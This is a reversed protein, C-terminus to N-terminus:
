YARPYMRSIRDHWGLRDDDMWMWLLGLGLPCAALITAFVRRRMAKRSPNRDGFTCLGIRAYLMGPTWDAFTFFLMRYVFGLVAFSVVCSLLLSPLAVARLGPGAVAAAAIAFALFGAGVLCGDVAAAMVRQELPAAQPETTFHAQAANPTSVERERNAELLLSQWEPAQPAEGGTAPLAEQVAEVEFIRLQPKAADADERLPGEALRPRAKRAAVLERPFEILNGPIPTTEIIHDQFEPARRFEIEHELAQLEEAFEVPRGLPSERALEGPQRAGGLDEYLKVTLGGASIETIASGRADGPEFPLRVNEERVAIESVTLHPPEAMLERAGLAIDALAHALDGRVEARHATLAQERPGPEAQEWAQMEELLQMQADAVARAKRAAIEAEAQAQVLAREAEAALFERYSQSGEYRARVADRVAFAGRRQESLASERRRRISAEQEAQQATLQANLQSRRRRHAALREAVTERLNAPGDTGTAQLSESIEEPQATSSM